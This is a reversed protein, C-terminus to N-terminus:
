GFFKKFFGGKGKEKPTEEAPEEPAPAEAPTAPAAGGGGLRELAEKAEQSGGEAARRYYDLAKAPDQTLGGLGHETFDGMRYLAGAHNQAAAKRYWEVAKVRDKHVGDGRDYCLGVNYIGRLNNQEAAKLFLSRFLM